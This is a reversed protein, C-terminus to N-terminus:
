PAQVLRLGCGYTTPDFRKDGMRARRMPALLGGYHVVDPIVISCALALNNGNSVEVELQQMKCMTSTPIDELHQRHDFLGTMLLTVEDLADCNESIRM